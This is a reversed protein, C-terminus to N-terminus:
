DTIKTYTFRGNYMTPGIHGFTGDGLYELIQSATVSGEYRGTYEMTSGSDSRHDVNYIRGGNTFTHGRSRLGEWKNRLREWANIQAKTPQPLPEPEPDECGCKSCTLLNSTCASCPPNIHCSCNEVQPYQMIGQHCEPCKCGEEFKNNMNRTSPKNQKKSMTKTQATKEDGGVISRLSEGMRSQSQSNVGM